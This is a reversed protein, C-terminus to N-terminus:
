RLFLSFSRRPTKDHSNRSMGLWPECHDLRGLARNAQDMQRILATIRRVNAYRDMVILDHPPLAALHASVPMLPRLIPVLYGSGVNELTVIRTVFEDAAISKDDQNVIPTAYFRIDREPVVNIRGEVEVSALSNIRLISLLLPYDVDQPRAGGLYVNPPVQGDVLFQKHSDRAVKDLLPQLPVTPREAM